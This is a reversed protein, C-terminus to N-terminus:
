FHFSHEIVGSEMDASVSLNFWLDNYFGYPSMPEPCWLDCYPIVFGPDVLMEQLSELYLNEMTLSEEWLGVPDGFSESESGLNAEINQNKSIGFDSTTNAEPDNNPLLINLEPVLDKQNVEGTSAESRTLRKKLHTHWHNKIENDTRGPLAAAIAAWRNGMMEHMKIITEDEERTFNGHRIDPRLYNMWRLRCSKGSRLLGAAEPMVRWNWIGYRKIYAILKRDEDPSWAGKKLAVKEFRQASAM